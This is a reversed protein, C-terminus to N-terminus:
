PHFSLIGAQLLSNIGIAVGLIMIIGATAIPLKRIWGAAEGFKELRHSATITLVGILILVAALGLSFSFILLLGIAIKNMAVGFLLIVIASPCPVLGGAIGLSLIEKFSHPAVSHDHHHDDHHHRHHVGGKLATRALIYYGTGFILLGSVVGLWPYINESLTYHSLVLAAVGLVIVSFVHTMTVVVGLHIADIIKGRSGVLYAAVMAKGHGPSLAHFAGLVFATFLAVLSILFGGDELRMYDLLPGAENSHEDAEGKSLSPEVDEQNTNTELIKGAEIVLERGQDALHVPGTQGLISLYYNLRDLDGAKFNRDRINIRKMLNLQGEPPAARFTFRTNLGMTFDSPLELTLSREMESLVLDAGESKVSLNPILLKAIRDLFLGQESTDLTGDLNRDPHLPLVVEPGFHTAYEILIGTPLVSVTSKQEVGGLPHASTDGTNWSVLAVLLVLLFSPKPIM